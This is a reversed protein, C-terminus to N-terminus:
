ILPVFLRFGGCCRPRLLHSFFHKVDEKSSSATRV